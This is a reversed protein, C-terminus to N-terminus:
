KVAIPMMQLLKTDSSDPFGYIAFLAMQASTLALGFINPLYIYLDNEVGYGYSLWVMANVWTACSIAFPMSATSRESIVTSVTGLPAACLLVAFVDGIIGLTEFSGEVTLYLSYLIVGAAAILLGATSRNMTSYKVYIATSFLGGLACVLNAAFVSPYGKGIGYFAWIAGCTALSLFPAILLPGVTQKRKIDLATRVAAHTIIMVTVPGMLKLPADLMTGKLSGATLLTMASAVPLISLHVPHFDNLM